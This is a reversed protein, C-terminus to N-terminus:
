PKRFSSPSEAPVHDFYKKPVNWPMHPKHFGVALFFPKGHDKGLQDIAWSAIRHDALDEDACALPAFRIGAVGDDKASAHRQLPGQDKPHAYADWEEPRDFGGHYIKGVGGVWYGARRFQTTLMRDVPIVPRWDDPNHYVGTTSPRLGSMVAARSPNCAPAACYARTFTTGLKALRDLNPTKAQPNRGLHGVWHNLDDVAIFLVNPRAPAAPAAAPTSPPLAFLALLALLALLPVFPRPRLRGRAPASRPNRAPNVPGIFGSSAPSSLRGPDRCAPQRRPPSDNFHRSAHAGEVNVDRPPTEDLRRRRRGPQRQPVVVFRPTVTRRGLREPRIVPRANRENTAAPLPPAIEVPRLVEAGGDRHGVDVFPVGVLRLRLELRLVLEGIEPLQELPVVNVRDHIPRRVVPVRQHVHRRRPRPLVDVALLRQGQRNPLALTQHLLNPVRLPDQLHAALLATVGLESQGAFQDAVATEALELV